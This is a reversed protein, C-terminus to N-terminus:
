RNADMRQGKAGSFPPLELQGGAQAENGAELLRGGAADLYEAALGVADRGVAAVDVGYELVIRQKRV